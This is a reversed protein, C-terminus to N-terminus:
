KKSGGGLRSSVGSSGPPLQKSAPKVQELKVGQPNAELLARGAGELYYKPNPCSPVECYVAACAVWDGSARFIHGCPCKWEKEEDGFIKKVLQGAQAVAQSVTQPSSSSSSSAPVLASAGGAAQRGVFSKLKGLM